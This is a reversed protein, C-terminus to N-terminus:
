PSGTRVFDMDVSYAPVGIGPVAVRGHQVLHLGEGDCHFFHGISQLGTIVTHSVQRGQITSTSRHEMRNSGPELTTLLMGNVTRWKFRNAGTDFTEVTFETGEGSIVDIGNYSFSGTHDANITLTRTGGRLRKRAGGGFAALASQEFFRRTSAQTEQWQGVPCTCDAASATRAAIRTRGATTSRTTTWLIRMRREGECTAISSPPAAWDAGDINRWAERGDEPMESFTLDFIKNRAFVYTYTNITFPVAPKVFDEPGSITKSYGAFPRAGIPRGDPFRIRGDEYDKAFEIWRDASISDQISRANRVFGQVAEPGEMMGHWLFYVVAPYDMASLPQSPIGRDFDRLYNEDEGSDPRALYAFYEASGEMLWGDRPMAHWTNFQICHFAEHALIFALHEGTGRGVGKYYTIPCERPATPHARDIDGVLRRVWADIDGRLYVDPGDREFASLMNTYLVTVDGLQLGPGMRNMAAGIAEATEHMRAIFEPDDTMPSVRRHIARLTYRHSCYPITVTAVVDCPQATLRVDFNASLYGPTMCPAWEEAQAPMALIAFLLGLAAAVWRM